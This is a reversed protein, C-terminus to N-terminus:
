VARSHRTALVCYISDLLRYINNRAVKRVQTLHRPSDCPTTVWSGRHEGCRDTNRMRARSTPNPPRAHGQRDQQHDPSSGTRPWRVFRMGTSIPATAAVALTM